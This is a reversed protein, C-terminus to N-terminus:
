DADPNVGAWISVEKGFREPDGGSAGMMENLEQVMNHMDMMDDCEIVFVDSVESTFARTWYRRVIEVKGAYKTLLAEFAKGPAERESEPLAFYSGPVKEALVFGFKRGAM